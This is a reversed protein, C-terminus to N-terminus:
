IHLKSTFVDKVVFDGIKLYLVEPFLDQTSIGNNSQDDDDDRDQQNITASCVTHEVLHNPLLWCVEVCGTIVNKLLMTEEVNFKKELENWRKVVDKVTLDNFDKKWKERVETYGATPIELNSIESIVDKIKRSYISGKYKEISQKAKLSNGAMKELMRINMWNWYPRCHRSMVKFIASLNQSNELKNEIDESLSIGGIVNLNELSKRHIKDFNEEDLIDFM